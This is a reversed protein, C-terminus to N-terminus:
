LALNQKASEQNLRDVISQTEAANLGRGITNSSNDSTRWGLGFERTVYNIVTQPEKFSM